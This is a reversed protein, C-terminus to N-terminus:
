TNQNYTEIGRITRNIAAAFALFHERCPTEIGRITRNITDIITVKM